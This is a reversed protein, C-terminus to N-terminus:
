TINSRRQRLNLDPFFLSVHLINNRGKTAKTPSSPGAEPMAGEIPPPLAGPHVGMADRAIGSVLAAFEPNGTILQLVGAANMDGVLPNAVQEQLAQVEDELTEVRARLQVNEQAVEGIEEFLHSVGALGGQVQAMANSNAAVIRTVVKVISSVNNKDIKEIEKNEPIL